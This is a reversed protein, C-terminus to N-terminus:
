KKPVILSSIEHSDDTQRTKSERFFYVFLCIFVYIDDAAIKRLVRNSLLRPLCDFNQFLKM